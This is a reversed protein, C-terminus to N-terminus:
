SAQRKRLNWFSLASACHNRARVASPRPPVRLVMITARARLSSMASQRSAVVPSIGCPTENRGAAYSSVRPCVMPLWRPSRRLSGLSGLHHRVTTSCPRQATMLSHARRGPAKSKIRMGADHNPGRSGGCVLVRSRNSAGPLSGETGVYTLVSGHGSRAKTRMGAARFSVLNHFSQFIGQCLLEGYLNWQSCGELGEIGILPM